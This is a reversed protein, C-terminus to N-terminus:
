QEKDEVQSDDDKDGEGDEAGMIASSVAKIAGSQMESAAEITDANVGKDCRAFDRVAYSAEQFWKGVEKMVSEVDESPEGVVKHVSEGASMLTDHVSLSFGCQSPGGEDWEGTEEEIEEEDMENEAAPDNNLASTLAEENEGIAPLQQDQQGTMMTAMDLQLSLEKPHFKLYTVVVLIHGNIKDNLAFIQHTSDQPLRPVASRSTFRIFALAVM